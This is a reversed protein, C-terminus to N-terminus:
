GAQRKQDTDRSLTKKEKATLSQLGHQQVKALIRDVEAAHNQDAKVRKEYRGKTWGDQIAQPNMRDAFNLWGPQKILVFGLLAGGLHAAEGGANPTGALLSFFSIALFLVAMTRLTMPIPPFLLQVRHHPFLTAAGVLIGFVAGSAGILATGAGIYLLGPVYFLATMVLAGCAGCLLYFALFRKSGWWSELMPGFFYLGILNFLLHFLGGHLFQYTFFRWFQFGYIGQEVNFNGWYFPSAWGPVRAGTTLIFDIISVAFNVLLLINVMSWGRFGAGGIRFGGGGGDGGCSYRRSEERLYDRNEFAM